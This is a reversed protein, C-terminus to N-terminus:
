RLMYLCDREHFTAVLRYRPDLIAAIDEPFNAEVLITRPARTNLDLGGLAAAEFGEVDLSLFDLTDVGSQQLVWDLTRAPVRVKEGARGYYACASDRSRQLLASATLTSLLGAAEIEVDPEDYGHSVLACNFVQAHPRNRLCEAYLEPVPEVLVGRWKWIRELSYTNSGTWGDHAGAELFVHGPGRPLYRRLEPWLGATSYRYIGLRECAERRVRLAARHASEGLIRRAVTM